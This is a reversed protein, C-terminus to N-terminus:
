GGPGQADSWRRALGGALVVEPDLEVGHTSAVQDRARLMLELVDVARAGGVNVIVNAHRPSIRAGGVALGKLGVQEILRGAYEGPPNRFISGVNPRDTPLSARRRGNLRQIEALATVADGRELRFEAAAVVLPLGQLNTSRYSPELEETRLTRVGGGRDVVRTTELVDRIETGYCGANMVVAGGVTSPFGTLAQMGVLGQSATRKALLALPVAAGSHVRLGDFRITEFDGVLRAVVGRLGEDPILVNSGLGLIQFPADSREVEAMLLRLAEETAVEVLLEAPGGIRFTSCRDLPAEFRVRLGSIASLSRGLASSTNQSPQRM